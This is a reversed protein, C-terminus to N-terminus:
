ESKLGGVSPLTMNVPPKIDELITVTIAATTNTEGNHVNIKIDGTGMADTVPVANLQYKGEEIKTISLGSDLYLSTDLSEATVTIAAGSVPVGPYGSEQVIFGTTILENQVIEIQSSDLVVELDSQKETIIITLVVKTQLGSESEATIEIEGIGIADTMPMAFLHYDGNGMPALSIDSNNFTTSNLSEATVTIAGGGPSIGGGSVIISSGSATIQGSEVNFDVELPKNKTIEYTSTSLNINPPEELSYTDHYFTAGKAIAYFEFFNGVILIVLCLFAILQRALKPHIVKKVNKPWIM